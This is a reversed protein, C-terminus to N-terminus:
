DDHSHISHHLNGAQFSYAPSFVEDPFPDDSPDYNTSAPDIPEVAAMRTGSSAGASRKVSKEHNGSFLHVLLQVIGYVLCLGVMWHFPTSRRLGETNFYALTAATLACVYALFILAAERRGNRLSFRAMQITRLIIYSPIGAALLIRGNEMLMEESM